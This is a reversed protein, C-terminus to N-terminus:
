LVIKDRPDILSLQYKNSTVTTVISHLLHLIPLKRGTSFHSTSIGYRRFNSLTYMQPRLSLSVRRRDVTDLGLGERWGSIYQISKALLKRWRERYYTKLATAKLAKVSSPTLFLMRGTFISHPTNTHDDRQLSICITQMHDLQHWQM